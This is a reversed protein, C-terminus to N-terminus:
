NTGKKLQDKGANKKGCVPNNNAANCLLLIRVVKSEYYNGNNVMM